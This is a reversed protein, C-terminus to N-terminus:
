EPGLAQGDIFYYQSIYSDLYSDQSGGTYLRSGIHHLVGSQNIATDTNSINADVSLSQLVGNVYIKHQSGSAQTTDTAFVIHYWGTDRHVANTQSLATSGTTTKFEGGTTIRADWYGSNGSLTPGAHLIIEDASPLKGKRWISITFTKRNGSSSPTRTLYQTSGKDFRLSGDIVQAGSARDETSSAFNPVVVGM